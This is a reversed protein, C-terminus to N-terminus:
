RSFHYSNQLYNQYSASVQSYLEYAESYLIFDDTIEPCIIRFKQLTINEDNLLKRLIETNLRKEIEEQRLLNKFILELKQMERGKKSFAQWLATIPSEAVNLGTVKPRNIVRQMYARENPKIKFRNVYLPALDYIMKTIYFKTFQKVSDNANPINKVKYVVNTYGICTFQISDNEGAAIVFNGRMDTVVGNRSNMNIAYAFPVVTNSDSEILVGKVQFKKQSYFSISM